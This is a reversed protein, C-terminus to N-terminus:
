QGSSFCFQLICKIVKHAALSGLCTFGRECIPCPYPTIGDHEQKLHVNRLKKTPLRATCSPATCPVVHYLDTHRRLTAETSFTKTCFPDTCKHPRAVDPKDDVEDSDDDHPELKPTWENDDDHSM